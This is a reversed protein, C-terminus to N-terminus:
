TLSGDSWVKCYIAWKKKVEDLLFAYKAVGGYAEANWAKKINWIWDMYVDAENGAICSDRLIVVWISGCPVGPMRIRISQRLPPDVIESPAQHVMPSSPAEPTGSLLTDTGASHDTRIRRTYHLPLPPLVHSPTDSTNPVKNLKLWKTICNSHYQHQCPLTTLMERNKYAMYCIVCKEHKDKSSFRSSKYKISPLYSILKESLGKSETGISEGLSQLGEYTMNDPDVNDQRVTPVSTEVTNVERNVATTQTTESLSTDDLQNELEQLSRALAEDLALQTQIDKTQSSEGEKKPVLREGGSQNRHLNSDTSASAKARNNESNTQLSQYVIEQDLLFQEVSVGGHELYSGEFNEEVQQTGSPEFIAKMIVARAPFWSLRRRIRIPLVRRELGCFM